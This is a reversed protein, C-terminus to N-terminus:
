TKAIHSIRVHVVCIQFSTYFCCVLGRMGHLHQIKKGKILNKSQLQSIMAIVPTQPTTNSSARSPEEVRQKTSNSRSEKSSLINNVEMLGGLLGKELVDRSASSKLHSNAIRHQKKFENIAVKIRKDHMAEEQDQEDRVHKMAIKRAMPALNSPKLLMFGHLTSQKKEKKSKSSDKNM